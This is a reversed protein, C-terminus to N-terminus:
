TLTAFEKGAKLLADLSARSGSEAYVRLLPETGSARFLIWTEAANKKGRTTPDELYFKIGDLTEQRLVKMGALAQLGAKARRVASQKAQEAIHLDLRGYYHEGYEQQLGEVLSGLSRGEEAMINALLLANLLGDREPLHRGIGISGSEEGGILIEKELM